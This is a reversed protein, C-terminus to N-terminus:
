KLGNQLATPMEGQKVVKNKILSIEM